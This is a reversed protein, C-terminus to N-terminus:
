DEAPQYRQVQNRGQTKAQYLALDAHHLLSAGGDDQDPNQWLAVGASIRLQVGGPMPSAAVQARISEALAVAGELVTDPLVVAFEEGGYRAAFDAPRRTAARLIRAIHVLCADGEAHGHTDNIQKFHDVDILILALPQGSRRMRLMEISLQEDLYRRNYIGTLGDRMSKVWLVNNAFQINQYIHHLERLLVYALVTAAVMSALNAAYWGLSDPRVQFFLLFGTNLLGVFSVFALWLHLVSRLGTFRVIAVLTVLSGCFALLGVRPMGFLTLGGVSYYEPAHNHVLWRTVLYVLVPPFSLLLWLSHRIFRAPLKRGDWRSYGWVALVIGPESYGHWILWFWRLDLLPSNVYFLGAVAHCSLLLYVSALVGMSFRRVSFYHLFLLYSTLGKALLLATFFAPLFAPNNGLPLSAFPSVMLSVMALFIAMALAVCRQAISARSDLLSSIQSPM